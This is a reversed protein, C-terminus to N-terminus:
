YMGVVACMAAIMVCYISAASQGCSSAAGVAVTRLASPLSHTFTGNASQSIYGSASAATGIDLSLPYGGSVPFSVVTTTTIATISTKNDPCPTPTPTSTPMTSTDVTIAMYTTRTRTVILHATRTYISTSIVTTSTSGSMSGSSPSQPPNGGDVATTATMGDYSAYTTVTVTVTQPPACPTVLSITPNHTYTVTALSIGAVAGVAETTISTAQASGSSTTYSSATDSVDARIGRPIVPHGIGSGPVGVRHALTGEVTSANGLILMFLVCSFTALTKMASRVSRAPM